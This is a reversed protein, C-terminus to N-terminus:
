EQEGGGRWRCEKGVRREESRNGEGHGRVSDKGLFNCVHIFAARRSGGERHANYSRDREDNKRFREVFDGGDHREIEGGVVGDGIRRDENQPSSLRLGLTGIASPSIGKRSSESQQESDQKEAARKIGVYGAAQACTM